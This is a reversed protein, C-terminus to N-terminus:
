IPLCNDVAVAVNNVNGTSKFGARSDTSATYRYHPAAARARRRSPPAAGTETNGTTDTALKDVTTLKVVTAIRVVTTQKHLRSGAAACAGRSGVVSSM